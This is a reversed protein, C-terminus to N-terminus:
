ANQSTAKLGEYLEIQAARVNPTVRGKGADLAVIANPEEPGLSLLGRPRHLKFSRGILHVGNAILASALTDGACGVYSKGDFAFRLPRARDVRGGENLRFAGSM